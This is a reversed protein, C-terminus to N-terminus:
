RSPSRVGLRGSAVPVRPPMVRALAVGSFRARAATSPMSHLRTAPTADSVRSPTAAPRTSSM